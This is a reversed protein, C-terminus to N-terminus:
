GPWTSSGDQRNHDDRDCADVSRAPSSILDPDRTTSRRLRRRRGTGVPQAHRAVITALDARSFRLHRGLFTCPIVRAGARRRLWSERVRLLKAAEAPTYLLQDADFGLLTPEFRQAQDNDSSLRHIYGSQRPRSSM